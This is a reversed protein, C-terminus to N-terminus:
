WEEITSLLVVNRMIQRTINRFYVVVNSDPKYTPVFSNWKFLGNLTWKALSDMGTDGEFRLSKKFPLFYYQGYGLM